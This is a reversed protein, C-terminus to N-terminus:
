LGIKFSVLLSNQNYKNSIYNLENFHINNMGLRYKVDIGYGRQEGEFTIGAGIVGAYDFRLFNSTINGGPMNGLVVRPTGYYDIVYRKASAAVLYGLEVGAYAVPKVDGAGPMDNPTLNLLIPMAVKHMKVDVNEINLGAQYVYNGDYYYYPSVDAAGQQSYLLEVSAGIPGMLQMKAFGGVAFGIQKDTFSNGNRAFSSWTSGVELGYKLDMGTGGSSSESSSEGEQAYSASAFVAGFALLALVSKFKLKMKKNILLNPAFIIRKKNM